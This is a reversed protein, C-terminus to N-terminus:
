TVSSSLTYRKTIFCVFICVYIKLSRVARGCRHNVLFPGCYDTGSKLFARGPRVRSSPLDVMIQKSCESLFRACVVCNRVAKRISSRAEVIWYVQRMSYHAAQVGANLYDLHYLKVHM